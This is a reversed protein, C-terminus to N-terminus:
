MACWYDGKAHGCQMNVRWLEREEEETLDRHAEGEEKLMEEGDEILKRHHDDLNAEMVAKCFEEIRTPGLGEKPCECDYAAFKKTGMMKIARSLVSNTTPFYASGPVSLVAFVCFVLPSKM